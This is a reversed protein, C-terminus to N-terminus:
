VNLMLPKANSLPALAIVYAQRVSAELLDTYNTSITAGLTTVKNDVTNSDSLASAYDSLFYAVSTSIDSYTTRFYPTQIVETGVRGDFYNIADEQYLGVAFMASASTSINGLDHAYAVLNGTTYTPTTDTLVGKAIFEAEVSAAIVSQYSLTDNSSVESSAFITDGWSASQGNQSFTVSDSASLVFINTGDFEQFTVGVGEQATWSDDIASFIEISPSDKSPVSASVTLYSYPLSQRILDTPSVPSFFDLTFTAVGAKLTILTHTSTFTISEQIAIKSGTIATPVGFLTYCAGNVRALVIWTLDHGGWFEIHASPAHDAQNGPLWAIFCLHFTLFQAIHM